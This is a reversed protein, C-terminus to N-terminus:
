IQQALDAENAAQAKVAMENTRAIEQELLRNATEIQSTRERMESNAQLLEHSSLDLSRELMARDTDFERYADNVASVFGRWEEPVTFSDGFYRKLQRRLLSHISKLPNIGGEVM